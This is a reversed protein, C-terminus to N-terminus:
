ALFFSKLPKGVRVTGPFQRAGFPYTAPQSSSVGIFTHNVWYSLMNTIMHSLNTSVRIKFIFINTHIISVGTIIYAHPMFNYKENSIELIYYTLIDFHYKRSM